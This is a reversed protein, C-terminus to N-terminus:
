FVPATARFPTLQECYGAHGALAPWTRHEVINPNARALFTMACTVAVDAHSLRDGFWFPTTRASREGELVGLINRVQSECRDLWADSATEHNRCEYIGSVLKECLSMALACIRLVRYREEGTPALMAREPGVLDDLYDLIAASEILAEGNDLVLTPVRIVPNFPAIKEIDAFASWLEYRYTIAYCQLAIAVRRTFPSACQGILIM